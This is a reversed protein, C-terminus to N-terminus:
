RRGGLGTNPAGVASQALGVPDVITGNATGDIDLDGGDTAQYTAITVTQSGLTTQEISAGAITFYANTNPNHKRLVYGDNTTDFYYQKITTTYGPTGCDLTFNMLGTPYEFGPDPINLDAESKMGAANIACADDVELIVNAGTVPNVFCDVFDETCEPTGDAPITTFTALTGELEQTGGDEWQTVTKFEYIKDPDLGTIAQNFAGSATLQQPATETFPDGSGQVRYRFFVDVPTFDGFPDLTGNLTASTQTVDSAPDTTPQPALMDTTASAVNSPNGTGASNIASVRYFYETNSDLGTNQYTTNTNNTDSVITTWGSVGDPSREIQYGTIPSGGEDAPADWSLNIQSAGASVAQLNLVADPPVAPDTVFSLLNGESEQTGVSQWQVVTKFEYQTDVTLGSIPASFAGPANLTQPTTETFPDGSGVIRYRFFVDAETFDSLDLTGHLTASTQTINDAPDTTVEPDVMDVAFTFFQGDSLTIDAEYNGGNSTLAIQQDTNDFTADNSIFLTPSTGSLEAQPIQLKQTGVTGGTQQAAWIREMRKLQTSNVPVVDNVVDTSGDDNGWTLFTLDSAFDNTNAQNTAAIGGHGIAVFADDNVSRSQKQNLSGVDDRGIGAIDKNYVGGETANWPTTTGDSALYDQPIAQDLTVGYKLALYSEIKNRTNASIADLDEDYVVIEAIRGDFFRGAQGTTKSQGGITVPGGAGRVPAENIETATLQSTTIAGTAESGGDLFLEQNTTFDIIGTMLTTALGRSHTVTTDVGGFGTVPTNMGASNTSYKFGYSAGIAEGFDYVFNLTGTTVPAVVAIMSLGSNTSFIYDNELTYGILDGSFDLAPNFNINDTANNRYIPGTLTTDIDTADNTRAGSQDGWSATVQGDTAPTTGKTAGSRDTYVEEDAKLWLQLNNLVGGPAAFAQQLPLLALVLSLMFLLVFSGAKRFAIKSIIM